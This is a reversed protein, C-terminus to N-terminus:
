VLVRVHEEGDRRLRHRVGFLLVEEQLRAAGGEDDVREEAEGIAVPRAHRCVRHLLVPLEAGAREHADGPAGRLEGGYLRIQM